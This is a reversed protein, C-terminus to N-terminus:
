LMPIRSLNSCDVQRDCIMISIQNFQQQFNKSGLSQIVFMLQKHRELLHSNIKPIGVNM